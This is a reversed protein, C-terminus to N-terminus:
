LWDSPIIMFLVCKLALWAAQLLLVQSQKGYVLSWPYIRLSKQSSSKKRSNESKM